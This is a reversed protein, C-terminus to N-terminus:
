SAALGVSDSRPARVASAAQLRQSIAPYFRDDCDGTSARAEEHRIALELLHLEALLPRAAEPVGLEHLARAAQGVAMAAAQKLPERRQVFAVQFYFHLADFGVPADAASSEWDWAYVKSGRRRSGLRALNWPVLDGHWGGYALETQGHQREIRAAAPALGSEPGAPDALAAIRARVGRWWPSGALEGAYGPFIETIERLLATDPLEPTRMRQVGAPLPATVVLDLGRWECRDLLAPVGLRLDADACAALAAAERRVAARSWDNWGVKVYGLPAGDAAFVQLVPKRYPGSGGGIAVVIRDRRFLERLYDTLLASALEASTAGDATGVDIRTALPGALGAQIAMAFARRALRQRPARLANYSALASVAGRRAGLSVM